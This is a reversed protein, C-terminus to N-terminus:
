GKIIFTISKHAWKTSNWIPANCSLEYKGPRLFAFDTVELTRLVPMKTSIGAINADEKKVSEKAHDLDLDFEEEIEGNGNDELSTSEGSSSNSDSDDEVRPAPTTTIPVSSNNTLRTLNFYM